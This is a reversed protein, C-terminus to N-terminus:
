ILMEDASDVATIDCPKAQLIKLRLLGTGCGIDLVRGHTQIGSM